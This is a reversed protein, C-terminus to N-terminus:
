LYGYIDHKGVSIFVIDGNKERRFIIRFNLTISISFLGSLKGKLAHFRLSPHLPNNRFMKEKKAALKKVAEPLNRFQKVFDSSYFIRGIIM